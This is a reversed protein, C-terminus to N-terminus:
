LKVAINEGDIVESLQTLKAMGGNQPRFDNLRSGILVLACPSNHPALTM